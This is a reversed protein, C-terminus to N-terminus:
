AMLPFIIRARQRGVSGEALNLVAGLTVEAFTQWSRAAPVMTLKRTCLMVLVLIVVMVLYTYLITNTLGFPGLHVLVQPALPPIEFGSGTSHAEPTSSATQTAAQAAQQLFPLPM